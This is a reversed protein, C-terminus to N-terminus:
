ECSRFQKPERRKSPSVGGLGCSKASAATTSLRRSQRGTRPSCSSASTMPASRLGLTDAIQVEITNKRNMREAKARMDRM